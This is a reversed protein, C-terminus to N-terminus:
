RQLDMLANQVILLENTLVTDIGMQLFRKADEAEDSYFLNCLIGHEHACAIASADVYNRDFQVKHAGCAIARSVLEQANEKGNWILCYRMEPAMERLLVAARDSNSAFYVHQACDYKRVLSVMEDMKANPTDGEWIKMHLNMIVQGALKKLVEEFMPIRIGQYSAYGASFDLAKLEALTHDSLQGRGNSVRELTGDHCSVLQEDRTLRVDLEIEDAGLAVAAGFSAMSNEPMAASFGRHACIRPYRLDRDFLSISM